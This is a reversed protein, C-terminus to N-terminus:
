SATYEALTLWLIVGGNSLPSIGNQRLKYRHQKTKQDKQQSSVYFPSLDLIQKAALRTTHLYLNIPTSNHIM